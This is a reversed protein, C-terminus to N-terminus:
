EGQQTLTHTGTGEGVSMKGSLRVSSVSCCSQLRYSHFYSNPISIHIINMWITAAHTFLDYISTAYQVLKLVPILCDFPIIFYSCIPLLWPTANMSPESALSSSLSNIHANQLHAQQNTWWRPFQYNGNNANFTQCFNIYNSELGIM